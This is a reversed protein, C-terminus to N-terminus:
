GKKRPIYALGFLVLLVVLMIMTIMKSFQQASQEDGDFVNNELPIEYYKSIIEALESYGNLIVASMRQPTFEEENTPLLFAMRDFYISEIKKNNLFSQLSKSAIIEIKKENLFVFIITYPETLNELTKKIYNERDAKTPYKQSKDDVVDILMKIGIKSEVENALNNVFEQSKPILVNSSNGLIFTKEGAM